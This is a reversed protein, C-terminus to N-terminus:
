RITFLFMTSSHASTTMRTVPLPRKAPTSRMRWPSKVRRGFSAAAQTAAPIAGPKVAVTAEPHGYAATKLYIPERLKLHDIMGKPSLPFVKRVLSALAPSDACVHPLGDTM